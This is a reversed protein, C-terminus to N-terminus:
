FIDCQELVSAMATGMMPHYVWGEDEACLCVSTDADDDELSATPRVVGLLVRTFGQPNDVSVESRPDLQVEFYHRGSLMPEGGVAMKPEMKEIPLTSKAFRSRVVGNSEIVLSTHARMNGLPLLGTSVATDVEEDTHGGDDAKLVSDNLKSLLTCGTFAKAEPTRLFHDLGAGFAASAALCVERCHPYARLDIDIFGTLLQHLQSAVHEALFQRESTSALLNTRALQLLKHAVQVRMASETNSSTVTQTLLEASAHAALLRVIEDLATPDVSFPATHQGQRDSRLRRRALELLSLVCALADMGTSAVLPAARVRAILADTSERLARYEKAAASAECEEMSVMRVAFFRSPQKAFEARALSVAEVSDGRQLAATITAWLEQAAPEVPADDGLGPLWPMVQESWRAQLEATSGPAPGFWCQASPTMADVDAIRALEDLVPPTLLQPSALLLSGLQLIEGLRGRAVALQALTVLAKECRQQQEIAATPTPTPAAAATQLWEILARVGREITLSGQEFLSLPSLMRGFDGACHLLMEAAHPDRELAMTLLRLASEVFFGAELAGPQHPPAPEWSGDAAQQKVWCPLTDAPQPRYRLWGGRKEQIEVVERQETGLRNTGHYSPGDYVAQAAKEGPEAAALVATQRRARLLRYTTYAGPPAGHDGGVWALQQMAEREALAGLAQARADRRQVLEQLSGSWPPPPPPPPEGHATMVGQRRGPTGTLGADLSRVMAAMMERTEAAAPLSWSMMPSWHGGGGGGGNSSGHAGGSGRGSGDGVASMSPEEDHLTVGFEGILVELRRGRGSATMVRFVHNVSRSASVREIIRCAFVHTAGTARLGIERAHSPSIPPGVSAHEGSADQRRTSVSVSASCHNRFRIDVSASASHEASGPRLLPGVEPALRALRSGRRGGGGGGSSSSHRSSSAQQRERDRNRVMMEQERQPRARLPEQQEQSSGGHRSRSSSNRGRPTHSSM